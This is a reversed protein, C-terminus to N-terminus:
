VIKYLFIKNVKDHEILKVKGNFLVEPLDYTYSVIKTGPKLEKMFKPVLRKLANPVLYMYVVTADSLSIKNFNEKLIKVGTAKARWVNWKAWSSRLPDIEIGIGTAGFEKNAIILAKGSGCGLDYIKDKKGIKAIKAMKRCVEEPTQWWPAWPSDPPWVASLVYLLFLIIVISIIDTILFFPAIHIM